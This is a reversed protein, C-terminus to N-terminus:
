WNLRYVAAFAGGVVLSSVAFTALLVRTARRRGVLWEASVVALPPLAPLLYRTPAFWMATAWLITAAALVLVAHGWGLRRGVTPIALLSGAAAVTAVVQNFGDPGNHVFEGPRNIFEVKLWTAISTMPRHGYHDTQVSWFYLPDGSHRWMWTAYCGIGALPLLSWAHGTRLRDAVFRVRQTGLALGRGARQVTDSAATRATVVLVGDRELVLVVLAPVFALATPRTFTAAAGLLGALVDRRATVALLAGVLFAMMVSDAYAVGFLVFSAPVLLFLGLAILRSRLVLNVAETWRWFLVTAILGGAASVLVASTYVDLHTVWMFARVLLPYGPFSAELAQGPEYGETAIRVFNTSDWAVRGGFVSYPPLLAEVVGTDRQTLDHVIEQVLNVPVAVVLWAVVPIRSGTGLWDPM